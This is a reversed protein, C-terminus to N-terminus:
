HYLNYKKMFDCINVHERDYKTWLSPSGIMISDIIKNKQIKRPHSDVVFILSSYKLSM